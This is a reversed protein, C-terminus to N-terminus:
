AATRLCLSCRQHFTRQRSRRSRETACLRCRSLEKRLRQFGSSCDVTEYLIISLLTPNRCSAYAVGITCGHDSFVTGGCKRRSSM